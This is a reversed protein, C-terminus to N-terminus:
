KRSDEKDSLVDLYVELVKEKTTRFIETSGSFSKSPTYSWEALAHHCATEKKFVDTVEQDKIIRIVPTVRFKDFYSGVIQLLREKSSHGSAKGVKYVLVDELVCELIYLRECKVKDGKTIKFFESM